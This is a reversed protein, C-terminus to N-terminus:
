LRRDGRLTVCTGTNSPFLTCCVTSSSVLFSSSSPASFCPANPTSQSVYWVAAAMLLWPPCRPPRLQARRPAAGNTGSLGVSAARQPTEAQPATRERGRPNRPCFLRVSRASSGSLLEASSRLPTVTLGCRARTASSAPPVGTSWCNASPQGHATPTGRHNRPRVACLAAPLTLRHEERQEARPLACGSRQAWHQAGCYRASPSSGCLPQLSSPTRTTIGLLETSSRGSQPQTFCV